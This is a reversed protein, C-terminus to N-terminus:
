TDKEPSYIVNALYMVTKVTEENANAAHVLPVSAVVGLIRFLATKVPVFEVV